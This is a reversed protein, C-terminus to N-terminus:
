YIFGLIVKNKLDLGLIFWSYISFFQLVNIKSM